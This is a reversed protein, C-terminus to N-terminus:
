MSACNKGEKLNKVASGVKVVRGSAEHGLVMPKKVVYDGIRGNQWFHVDSGCIGVSHMQLLVESYLFSLCNSLLICLSYVFFIFHLFISYLSDPYYMTEIGNPGPEPIPRQEQLFDIM